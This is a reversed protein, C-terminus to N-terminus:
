FSELTKYNTRNINFVEMLSTLFKVFFAVHHNFSGERVVELDDRCFKVM